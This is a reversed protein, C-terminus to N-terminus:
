STFNLCAPPGNTQCTPSNDPVLVGNLFLLDLQPGTSGLTLQDMPGYEVLEPRHYEKKM